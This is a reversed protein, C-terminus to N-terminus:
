SPSITQPKDSKKAGAESEGAEEGLHRPGLRVKEALDDQPLNRRSQEPGGGDGVGAVPGPAEEHRPLLTLDMHDVIAHYLIRQKEVKAPSDRTAPLPSQQAHSKM